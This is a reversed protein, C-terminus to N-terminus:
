TLAVFAMSFAYTVLDHGPPLDLKVSTRMPWTNPCHILLFAQVRWLHNRTSQALHFLFNNSGAEATAYKGNQPFYLICMFQCSEKLAEMLQSLTPYSRDAPTAWGEAYKEWYSFVCQHFQCSSWKMSSRELFALPLQCNYTLSLSQLSFSVKNRGEFRDSESGFMWQDPNNSKRLM